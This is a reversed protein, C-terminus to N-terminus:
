SHDLMKAISYLVAVGILVFGITKPTKKAQVEDIDSSYNALPLTIMESNSRNAGRGADTWFSEIIQAAIRKAAAIEKTGTSRFYKAGAGM